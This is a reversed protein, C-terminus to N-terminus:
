TNCARKRLSHLLKEINTVHPTEQNILAKTRAECYGKVEKDPFIYFEKRLVAEVVSTAVDLAPKSHSLLQNLKDHFPTPKDKPALLATDTFSPFAVSLSLEKNLSVLDFYLSETLALVAHKSLTYAAVHSGACLAYLSAMNILHSPTSQALLLPTFAQIMHLIGYVNVQMVKDLAQANLEWLPVLPGMIGANNYLWDITELHSKAFQALAQVAQVNTVDCAKFLVLGPYTTEFDQAKTKLKAEDIDVMLVRHGKQLHVQTLAQGIGSAAGTIIASKM